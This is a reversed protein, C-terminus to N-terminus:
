INLTVIQDAVITVGHQITEQIVNEKNATVTYTDPVLSVFTFHGSNDTTSTSTQSPSSATVKAQAVPANTSSLLVTGNLTGTVGALAWTGQALLVAVSLFALRLLGKM